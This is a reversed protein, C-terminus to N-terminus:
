AVPNSWSKSPINLKDLQVLRKNLQVKVGLYKVQDPASMKPTIIENLYVLHELVENRKLRQVELGQFIFDLLGLEMIGKILKEARNLSGVAKNFLGHAFLNLGIVLKNKSRRTFSCLPV